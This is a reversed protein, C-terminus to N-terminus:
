LKGQDTLRKLKRELTYEGGLKTGLLLKTLEAEYVEQHGMSVTVVAKLVQLLRWRELVSPANAQIRTLYDNTIQDNACTRNMIRILHAKYVESSEKRVLKSVTLLPSNKPTDPNFPIMRFVEEYVLVRLEAPLDLFPSTTVRTDTPSSTTEM